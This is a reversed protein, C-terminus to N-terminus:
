ETLAAEVASDHAPRVYITLDALHNELPTATGGLPTCQPPKYEDGGSTEM